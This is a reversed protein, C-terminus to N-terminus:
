FPNERDYEKYAGGTSSDMQNLGETKEFRSIKSLLDSEEKSLKLDTLSLNESEVDIKDALYYSSIMMKITLNNSQQSTELSNIFLIPLSNELNKILDIFKDAPGSVEINLPMKTAVSKDALKLSNTTNKLDEVSLTFSSIDYGYKETIEGIVGLLLYSNKEKLVASSLYDSDQKLQEQDVSLLYNRKEETSKTQSKIKESSSKLSKISEIKPLILWGLSTIFFVILAFPPLFLKILSGSIGFVTEPMKFFANNKM